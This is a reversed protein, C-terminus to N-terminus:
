DVYREQRAQQMEDWRLRTTAKAQDAAYRQQVREIAAVWVETLHPLKCEFVRHVKGSDLSSTLFFSADGISFRLTSTPLHFAVVKFSKRGGSVAATGVGIGHLGAAGTHAVCKQLAQTTTALPAQVMHQGEIRWFRETKVQTM